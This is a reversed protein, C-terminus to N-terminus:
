YGTTKTFYLWKRESISSRICYLTNEPSNECMKRHCIVGYVCLMLRCDPIHSPSYFVLKSCMCVCMVDHSINAMLRFYIKTQHNYKTQNFLSPYCWMVYNSDGTDAFLRLNDLIFYYSSAASFFINTPLYTIFGRKSSIRREPYLQQQEERGQLSHALNVPTRLHIWM